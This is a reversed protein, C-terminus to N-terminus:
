LPKSHLDMFTDFDSGMVVSANYNRGNIQSLFFHWSGTSSVKSLGSDGYVCSAWYLSLQSVLLAIGEIFTLAFQANLSVALSSFFLDGEREREKEEEREEHTIFNIWPWCAQSHDLQCGHLLECLWLTGELDEMSCFLAEQVRLWLRARKYLPM